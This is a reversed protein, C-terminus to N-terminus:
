RKALAKASANIALMILLSISLLASIVLAFAFGIVNLMHSSEFGTIWIVVTLAVFSAWLITLPVLHRRTIPLSKQTLPSAPGYGYIDAFPHELIQGKPITTEVGKLPGVNVTITIPGPASIRPERNRILTCITSHSAKVVLMPKPLKGKEVSVRGEKSVHLSATELESAFIFTMPLVVSRMLAGRRKSLREQLATEMRLVDKSLLNAITDSEELWKRESISGDPLNSGCNGCTTRGSANEAGCKSCKM